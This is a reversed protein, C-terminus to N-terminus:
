VTGELYISICGTGMAAVASDLEGVPPREIVDPAWWGCRGREKEQRPRAYVFKDRTDYLAEEPRTTMGRRRQKGGAKALEQVRMTRERAAYRVTSSSNLWKKKTCGARNGSAFLEGHFHDRFPNEFLCFAAARRM